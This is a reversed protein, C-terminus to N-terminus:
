RPVNQPASVQYLHVGYPQYEDTFEGRRIPVTRSEDLLEADTGEPLGRVTFSARVQQNRMNVTFLYTKGSLRKVMWGVSGDVPNLTVTAGDAVSSSNLVPALEHIQRNIDTVAALMEPDDLLAAEKFEPKFQHVFYIM